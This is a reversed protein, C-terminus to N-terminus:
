APELRDRLAVRRTPMGMRGSGHVRVWMRVTVIDVGVGMTVIGLRMGVRRIM